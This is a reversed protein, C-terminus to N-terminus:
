YPCPPYLCGSPSTTTTTTTGTTGTTGTTTAGSGSSTGSAKVVHWTGGFGMIGEGTATDKKTDGSFKYLPHGGLTIQLFGNHRWTGLKGNIGPAKTLDHSSSVTVPPWFRLCASSTCMPNSKSDGSLTYVASGKATVVINEHTATGGQPMVSAHKAVKLTFTKGLAVGIAGAAAFGGALAVITVASRVAHARSPPKIWHMREELPNADARQVGAAPLVKGLRSALVTHQARIPM